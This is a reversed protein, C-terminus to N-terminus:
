TRAAVMAALDEVVRSVEVGTTDYEVAGDATV